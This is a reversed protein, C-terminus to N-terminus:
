YNTWQAPKDDCTTYTKKLEFINQVFDYDFYMKTRCGEGVAPGEMKIVAGERKGFQTPWGLCKQQKNNITAQQLTGGTIDYRALMGNVCNYFDGPTLMILIKGNESYCTNTIKDVAIQNTAATQTFAAYWDKTKYNGISGCSDFKVETAPVATAATISATTANADAVPEPAPPNKLEEIQKQLDAIQQQLSANEAEYTNTSWYTILSSALAVCVLAFIFRLTKGSQNQELM